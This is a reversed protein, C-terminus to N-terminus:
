PLAVDKLAFAYRVMNKPTKMSVRLKWDPQPKGEWTSLYVVGEESRTSVRKVEGAADVYAIDQIRQNPDKIRVLLESEQVSLLSELLSKITQELSEADEWGSDKYEKRKADAIRKREAEIQKDTLLAFEVGNAKLAKHTLPKGSTSIFKPIEAVSNPDKSPMYLEIEGRVEKVTKAKRDPNKLTVDVTAPPPPNEPEAGPRPTMRFNPQLQPESAEPDLLSRGSDDTAATLLVRSAEVEASRIKPLELAIVLQSFSGSTRRDNIREIKVEVPAPKPQAALTAASLALALAAITKM